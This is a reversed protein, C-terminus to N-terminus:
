IDGAVGDVPIYEPLESVYEIKLWIIRASNFKLFLFKKLREIVYTLYSDAKLRTPRGVHSISLHWLRQLVEYTYGYFSLATFQLDDIEM